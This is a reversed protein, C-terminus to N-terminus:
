WLESCDLDDCATLSNRLMLMWYEVWRENVGGRCYETAIYVGMPVCLRYDHFLQDWSYEGVSNELLHAHYRKLVPIELQRRTEVPWDLVMAYVLDYVGLWTTLSWNFPQRDIIYIPRHGTRPVLVNNRGVDGHILTFGNLDSAREIIQRPHRAYLTSMLDPWHPKLDNSYGQLIHGVGPEAIDVFHQIHAADHIPAGAEVLRERGWWRAHMAALGEALALGYELTPEKNASETHTVTVDDFLIHYRNLEQSYVADYWNLLPANPVDGYDHEYYSVESGSFTEDDGLDTDVMKLFLRGPLAGQSGATYSVAMQASSSWNGQGRSVEIADVAGQTLAGRAALVATLWAVTVQDVHTIVKDTM